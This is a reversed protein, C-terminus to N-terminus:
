GCHADLAARVWIDMAPSRVYDVIPKLGEARQEPTEAECPLRGTDANRNIARTVAERMGQRCAVAWKGTCFDLDVVGVDTRFYLSWARRELDEDLAPGAWDLSDEFAQAAENPSLERKLRTAHLTWLHVFCPSLFQGSRQCLTTAEEELGADWREEALLFFCEDRWRDDEISACHDAVGPDEPHERSLQGLCEARLEGVRIQGCLEAASILDLAEASRAYLQGDSPTCALLWIV